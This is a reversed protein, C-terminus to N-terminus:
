VQNKEKDLRNILRSSIPQFFFQKRSYETTSVLNFLKYVKNSSFLSKVYGLFYNARTLSRADKCLLQCVPSTM